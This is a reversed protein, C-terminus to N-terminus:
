VIFFVVSMMIAISRFGGVQKKENNNKKLHIRGGITNIYPM